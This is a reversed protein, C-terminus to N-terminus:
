RTREKQRHAHDAFVLAAGLASMVCSGIAVIKQHDPFAGKYILFLSFSGIFLAAWTNFASIKDKSSLTLIETRPLPYFRRLVVLMAVSVVALAAFGDSAPSRSGTLAIMLASVFVSGIMAFALGLGIVKHM